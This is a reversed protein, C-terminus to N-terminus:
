LTMRAMSHLTEFTRFLGGDLTTRPVWDLQRLKDTNLPVREYNTYGTMNDRPEIIVGKGTGAISQIKKALDIVRVPELENAINYASNVEGSLLIRFIAEVADAVYCFARKAEGTSNLRIDRANVADNMFDAMVRGDRDIAMGPGYSHAIRASNFSVQYQDAYAQLLAEAARKSEPYCSRPNLPDLQGTDSEKISMKGSVTGFVERTSAFLVRSTGRARAIDLVRRTGTVNANIIGVPNNVIAHASSSGAAHFAFDIPGPWTLEDCVDQVLYHIGLREPDDGFVRDLKRKSRALAVISIGADFDRNLYAMVFCFYSALMGTAGTVLVTKGYLQQWDMDAHVIAHIDEEVIPHNM